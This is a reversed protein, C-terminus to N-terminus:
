NTQGLTYTLITVLILLKRSSTTSLLSTDKKHSDDNGRMKIAKGGGFLLNCVSSTPRILVKTGRFLSNTQLDDHKM